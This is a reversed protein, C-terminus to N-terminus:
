FRLRITRAALYAILALVAALVLYVALRSKRVVRNRNYLVGEFAYFASLLSGLGFVVPFLVTLTESKIFLFVTLGIIIICLSCQLIEAFYSRRRM